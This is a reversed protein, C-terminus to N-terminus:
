FLRWHTSGFVVFAAMSEEGLIEICFKLKPWTKGLRYMDYYRKSYLM